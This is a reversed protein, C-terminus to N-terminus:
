HGPRCGSAEGHVPIFKPLHRQLGGLAISWLMATGQVGGHGNGVVCMQRAIVTDLGDHVPSM